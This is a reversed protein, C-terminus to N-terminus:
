RWLRRLTKAIGLSDLGHKEYLEDPHGHGVFEDPFGLREVPTSLKHESLLELVAAGFGGALCGDEVTILTDHTKAVELVLETDIPKVFRMDWLSAHLGSTAIAEKAANLRNGLSLIAVKEGLRVQRSKGVPIEELDYKWTLESTRGRPYRLAFAVKSFQATFMMNRLDRADSPAAIVINPIARLLSIDFMGHHTPGDEGVVGARDICFVVPLKQLCVDHIVQDYSRQLFTSYINCFPVFGQAALGASFTVAHEEAIGVDFARTPFEKMFINLSSGSPMAPTIGVVKPNSRALECLTNGFVEQYKLPRNKPKPEREGTLKDFKGPAHWTVQNREAPPYGKGKLTKVHLIRPGSLTKVDELAELLEELNHGDVPGYYPISLSEFFQKPSISTAKIGRKKFYALPRREEKTEESGLRKGHQSVEVVSELNQSLAGVAPDISIANDNLIILLNANSVGANNLGEFALGGTLAGDGIVAIHQQEPNGSLQAATAMGLAASISTSAHGTGFADYNSETRSPFGSIGGFKRINPLEYMRGTLVKHSYSQHGVDWVLQDKPTNFLYHIAVTLEVVGLGAAFHGGTQSIVDIHYERLADCLQKLENLSFSRIDEPSSIKHLM